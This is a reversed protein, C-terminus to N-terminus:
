CFPRNKVKSKGTKKEKVGLLVSLGCGILVLIAAIGCGKYRGDFFVATVTLLTLYYAGGTMLCIQTRLRKVVSVATLSGFFSVALLVIVIGNNGVDLSVKESSILWSLVFSSLLTTMVSVLVGVMIGAPIGARKRTTKKNSKM